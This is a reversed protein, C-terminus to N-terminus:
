LCIVFSESVAVVILGGVILGSCLGHSGFSCFTCCISFDHVCVLNM